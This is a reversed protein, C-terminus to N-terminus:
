IYIEYLPKGAAKTKTIVDKTGRSEKDWFAIVVRAREVITTNRIIPAIKPPHNVYDPPHGEYPIKNREALKRAMSDTGTADGSVILTPKLNNANLCDRLFMRFLLYNAFSRPGVIAIEM